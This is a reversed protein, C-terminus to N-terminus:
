ARNHFVPKRRVTLLTAVAAIALLLTSPEPIVSAVRFGVDNSESTPALVNRHSALLSLSDFRFSGGRLGRSSSTM